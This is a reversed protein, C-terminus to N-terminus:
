ENKFDVGESHRDDLYGSKILPILAERAVENIAHFDGHEKYINVLCEIYEKKQFKNTLHIAIKHSDEHQPSLRNLAKNRLETEM